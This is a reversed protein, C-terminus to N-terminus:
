AYVYVCAYMYVSCVSMRVVVYVGVRCVYWLRSVCPLTTIEMKERRSTAKVKKTCTHQMCALRGILALRPVEAKPELKQSDLLRNREPSDRKSTFADWIPSSAKQGFWATPERIAIPAGSRVACALASAARVSPAFPPPAQPPQEFHPTAPEKNSAPSFRAAFEKLGRLPGDTGGQPTPVPKTAARPPKQAPPSRSAAVRDAFSMSSALM